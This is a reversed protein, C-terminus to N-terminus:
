TKLIELTMIMWLPGLFIGWVGFLAFGVFTSMLMYFENIGLKDGMLRPELIERIVTCLIYLIALVVANKYNHMIAAAIAWPILIIGSGIVPLADLVAIVAGILIGYPNGILRLGIGLIVALIGVIVFQCKFFCASVECIRAAMGTIEGAFINKSIQREIRKKNKILLVTGVMAVILVILVKGIGKFVSVCMPGLRAPLATRVSELCQNGWQYMWQRVASMSAGSIDSAKVCIRDWMEMIWGWSELGNQTLNIIQGYIYWLGGILVGFILIATLGVFVCAWVILPIHTKTSLKESWPYFLRCGGFAIVFPLVIPLAYKLVLYVVAATLAIQFLKIYKNTKNPSM